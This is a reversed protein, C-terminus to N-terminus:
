APKGMRNSWTRSSNTRTTWGLVHSKVNYYRMKQIPLPESLVVRETYGKANLAEITVGGRRAATTSDERPYWYGNARTYGPDDGLDDDNQALVPTFNLVLFLAVLVLIRVRM